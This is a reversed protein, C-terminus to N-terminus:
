SSRDWDADEGSRAKKRHDSARVASELTLEGQLVRAALERRITYRGGSLERSRHQLDRLAGETLHYHLPREVRNGRTAAITRASVPDNNRMGHPTSGTEDVMEVAFHQELLHNVIRVHRVRDGNGVRFLLSAEPFASSLGRGLDTVSEPRPLVGSALCREGPGLIAFGPRPGPDIGLRIEGRSPFAGLAAQLLAWTELTRGKRAIITGPHHLHEAEKPSTLIVRVSRPVEEGPLLSVAPIGQERLLQALEGYLAPDETLIGIEGKPM